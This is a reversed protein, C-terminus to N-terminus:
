YKLHSFTPQVAWAGDKQILGYSGKYKVIAFGYRFPGASEFELSIKQNGNLDTFIASGNAKKLIVFGGAYTPDDHTYENTPLNTESLLSGDKDIYAWKGGKDIAAIGGSFSYIANALIKFKADSPALEGQLPVSWSYAIGDQVLNLRGERVESQLSSIRANILKKNKVDLLAYYLPRGEVKFTSENLSGKLEGDVLISTYGERVKKLENFSSAPLYINDFSIVPLGLTDLVLVRLLGETATKKGALVWGGQYSSIADYEFPVSDKGKLDIAGCKGSENVGTIRKSGIEANLKGQRPAVIWKAQSDIAGYLGKEKVVAVNQYFPNAEEFQAQVVFNGASNIYGWKSEKPAAILLEQAQIEIGGLLLATIWAFPLTKM